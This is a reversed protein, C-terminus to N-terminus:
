RVPPPLPKPKPKGPPKPPASICRGNPDPHPRPKPKPKSPGGSGRAVHKGGGNPDPPPKPGGLLCSPGYGEPTLLHVDLEPQTCQKGSSPPPKPRPTPIKPGRQTLCIWILDQITKAEDNSLSKVLEELTRSPPPKPRPQPPRPAPAPQPDPKPRPGFATPEYESTAPLSSCLAVMAKVKREQSLMQQIPHPIFTNPLQYSSNNTAM